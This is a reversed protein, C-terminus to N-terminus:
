DYLGGLFDLKRYWDDGFTKKMFRDFMKLDDSQYGGLSDVYRDYMGTIKEPFMKNVKDIASVLTSISVNYNEKVNGNVIKAIKKYYVNNYADTYAFNLLYLARLIHHKIENEMTHYDEGGFFRLEIRGDLFNYDGFKISQYKETDIMRKASKALEKVLSTASLRGNNNAYEEEIVGRLEDQIAGNIIGSLDYVYQREPFLDLVHDMDLLAVYKMMNFDDLDYKNTSISVHMGSINSTEAHDYIFNFMQSINNFAKIVNMKDTIVEAQDGHDTSITDIVTTDVGNDALNAETPIGEEDGSMEHIHEHGHERFYELVIDEIVEIPERSMRYSNYDEYKITDSNVKGMTFDLDEEPTPPGIETNAMSDVMGSIGKEDDSTVIYTLIKLYDSYKGMSGEDDFLDGDFYADMLLIIDEYQPTNAKLNTLVETVDSWKIENDEFTKKLARLFLEPTKEDDILEDQEGGFAADVDIDPRVNKKVFQEFDYLAYMMKLIIPFDSTINTLYIDSDLAENYINEMEERLDNNEMKAVLFEYGDSALEHFDLPPRYHMEYEIGVNFDDANQLVLAKEKDGFKVGEFIKKTM